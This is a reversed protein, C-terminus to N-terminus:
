FLVMNDRHIIEPECVFGLVSEMETSSKGAILRAESGSYNSLGRAIERGDLNVISVIDGRSFTGKVEVVGVPLLSKGDTCIKLNAGADVVLAGKVQLQDVM